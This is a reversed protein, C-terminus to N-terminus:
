AKWCAEAVVRRGAKDHSAPDSLRLLQSLLLCDRYRWPEPAATIAAQRVEWATGTWARSVPADKGAGSPRL